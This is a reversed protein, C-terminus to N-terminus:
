RVNGGCPEFPLFLDAFLTGKSLAESDDYIDTFTQEPAYIMALPKDAPFDPSRGNYTNRGTLIPSAAGTLSDAITRRFDDSIRERPTRYVSYQKM